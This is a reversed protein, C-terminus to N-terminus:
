TFGETLILWFSIQILRYHATYTRCLFKDKNEIYFDRKRIRIPDGNYNSFLLNMNRFDRVLIDNGTITM